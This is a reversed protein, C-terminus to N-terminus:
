EPLLDKSEQVFEEYFKKIRELLLAAKELDQAEKELLFAVERLGEVYITGAAGKLSHAKKRLLAIDRCALAAEMAKIQEKASSLFLAILERALEIDQDLEELFKERQWALDM